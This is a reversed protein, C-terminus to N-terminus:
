WNIICQGFVVRVQELLGLNKQLFESETSILLTWLVLELCDPSQDGLTVGAETIQRGQRERAKARKSGRILIGTTVSPGGPYDRCRFIKLKIM